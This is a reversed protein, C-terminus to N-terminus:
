LQMRLRLMLWWSCWQLEGTMRRHCSLSGCTSLAMGWHSVIKKRGSICCFEEWFVEQWCMDEGYTSLGAIRHPFDSFWTHAAFSDHSKLHWFLGSLDNFGRWMILPSLLLDPSFCWGWPRLRLHSSQMTELYHGASVRQSLPSCQKKRGPPKLPVQSNWMKLLMREASSDWIKASSVQWLLPTLMRPLGAMNHNFSPVSKRWLKGELQLHPDGSISGHFGEPWCLVGQTSAQIVQVERETEELHPDWNVERTTLM